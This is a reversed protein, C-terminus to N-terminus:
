FLFFLFLFFLLFYGLQKATSPRFHYTWIPLMVSNSSWPSWFSDTICPDPPSPRIRYTWNPPRHLHSSGSSSWNNWEVSARKATSPDTFMDSALHKDIRCIPPSDRSAFIYICQSTRIYLYRLFIFLYIYMYISFFDYVGVFFLLCVCVDTLVCEYRYLRSHMDTLYFIFFLWLLVTKLLGASCMAPKVNVDWRIYEM